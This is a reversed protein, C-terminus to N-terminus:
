QIKVIKKSFQKVHFMLYSCDNIQNNKNIKIIHLYFTNFFCYAVLKVIPQKKIIM